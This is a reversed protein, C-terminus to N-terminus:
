NHHERAKAYQEGWKDLMRQLEENTETSIGQEKCEYIVGDLLKSMEATDYKSSGKIMEYVTFKGDESTGYFKWHGEIRSMDVKSLVTITTPHGDDNLYFTGYRQLMLEYVEDKSTRMVGALKDCLVWLYANADLSRKKRWKAIHIALKTTQGFGQITELATDEDMSLTIHWKKSSFDKALGVIFGTFDM